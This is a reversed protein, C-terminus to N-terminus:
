SPRDYLKRDQPKVPKGSKLNREDYDPSSPCCWRQMASPSMKPKRSRNNMALLRQLLESEGDRGM